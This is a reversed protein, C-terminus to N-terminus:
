GREGTYTRHYRHGLSTLIEYGITGAAAAAADVTVNEGLLEVLDGPKAGPVGTVDLTILDMSVRGVVPVQKTGVFCVGKSSLSRLYGDAYGVGVTAIRTPGGARHTAGYGVTEPADISRVQLIRAMLRVTQRMPNEPRDTPNVGYLACGPRALDYHFDPGLFIGASNALSAKADPALPKLKALAADFRAKQDGNIPDKSLEGSVLHTMFYQLKLGKLGDPNGALKEVEDPPLGLRSMGTDIHVIAPQPGGTKGAHAQWAAIQGLDNLVPVLRHEGFVPEAGAIPGGLIYIEAGGVAPRLAIGEELQAVFFQRCGEAALRAGVEEAGLGYGDAKVVAACAGAAADRLQRYNAAVADLDIELVACAHDAGSYASGFGTSEAPTM